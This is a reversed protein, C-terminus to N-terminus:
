SLLGLDQGHWANRGLPRGHLAACSQQPPSGASGRVESLGRVVAAVEDHTSRLARITRDSPATVTLAVDRRLWNM